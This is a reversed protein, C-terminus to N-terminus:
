FIECNVPQYRSPFCFLDGMVDKMTVMVGNDENDGQGWQRGM